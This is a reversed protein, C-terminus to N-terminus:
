HLYDADSTSMAEEWDREGRNRRVRDRVWDIRDRLTERNERGSQPALMLSAISGVLMGLALGLIIGNRREM